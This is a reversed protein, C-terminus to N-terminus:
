NACSVCSVSDRNITRSYYLAKLTTSFGNLLADSIDKINDKEPTIVMEASIGTDAWLHLRTTLEIIIHVPINPYEKYYWFRETLYRPVVPVNMKDLTEYSFKSFIPLYSASCACLLSSSTNPAVAFLQSNRVGKKAKELLSVWDFEKTLSQTQLELGTKGLFKGKAFSSKEFLGFSGKEQAIEISSELTYYAVREFINEIYDQDTEYSKKNYALHDAVGMMGVGIIRTEQTLLEGEILPVTTVDIANDLMRVAQKAYKDIDSLSMASINLSILNCTHTRGPTFTEVAVGKEADYSKKYSHSPRAPSTSETCNHVLIENAYFNHNDEINIDYLEIGDKHEYIKIDIGKHSTGQSTRLMDTELLDEARLYGRNETWVKHNGSCKIKFGTNLDTIEYTKAHKSTLFGYARKYEDAGSRLDRSLVEVNETNHPFDKLEIEKEFGDVRVQIKTDGSLCLNYSNIFMEADYFPNTKNMADKCVIYLDGTEIYVQLMRKWLDKAKILECNYLKKNEVLELIRSYNDNFQKLDCIDIDLVDIVSKRDLLPFVDNNKVAEIFKQNVIVQPYINFCKQRVDGGSETKMEIFSEIDKHFVDVSVTIAGARVGCNHSLISNVFFNEDNEVTFDYFKSDSSSDSVGIIRTTEGDSTLLEDGLEFDFANMYQYYEPSYLRTLKSTIIVNGNALQFKLQNDVGVKKTHLEKIENFVFNGSSTNYSKILDGERVQEIKVIKTIGSDLIEVESGEIHCQNWAPAMDDIIKTWVNIVNAGPSGKVLANSPRLRGLYVGVGGGNKSITAINRFTHNISEANDDIETIFCSSLNANPKRLNAKFPTALSINLSAVAEYDEKIKKLRDVKEHQNLFMVTVINAFQPLEFPKGKHKILYKKFLSKTSSIPFILDYKPQIFKEIKEIEEPSYKELIVADYLDYKVALKIFDILKTASYEIKHNKYVERYLNYIELRGAVVTWDPEDITILSVASQILGFQIEQTKIKNKVKSSVTAELVLPNVRLGKTAFHIINKIKSVDYAELRGDRKQVLIDSSM